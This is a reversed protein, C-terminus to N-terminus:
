AEAALAAALAEFLDMYTDLDDPFVLKVSDGVAVIECKMTMQMSMPSGEVDMSMDISMDLQKLAGDNDIYYSMSIDGIAIDGIEGLDMNESVMAFVQEVIATMSGGSIEISYVTLGGQSSKTLSKIMYIPNDSMGAMESIDTLAFLDGMGIESSDGLSLKLKADESGIYLLGDVIYMTMDIDEGAASGEMVLAMKIDDNDIIMAIDININGPMTEGMYTANMDIAMSMEINTEKNSKANIENFEGLLNFLDLVPAAKGTDVAEEAVLKELLCDYEGDAPPVSLALYSVATMNGRLFTGSLLIDDIVGVQKGFAIAETWLDTTVSDDSYGLARLIFTVYMQASCLGSPNFTTDTVGTTYGKEFAIAVYGDAWDPVDTFPHTYEGSQSEEELGLFRVLMAVAEDRRPARDLEFGVDTGRFLDLENLQLAAEEYNAASATIVLASALVAVALIMVLIKKM